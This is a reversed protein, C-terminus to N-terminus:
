TRVGYPTWISRQRCFHVLVSLLDKYNNSNQLFNQRSKEVCWKVTQSIVNHLEKSGPPLNGQFAYAIDWSTFEQRSCRSWLCRIVKTYETESLPTLHGKSEALTEEPEQFPNQALFSQASELVSYIFPGRSKVDEMFAQHSLWFFLATLVFLFAVFFFIILSAAEWFILFVDSRSLLFPATNMFSETVLGTYLNASGESLRSSLGEFQPLFFFLHAQSGIIQLEFLNADAM